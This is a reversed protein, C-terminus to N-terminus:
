QKLNSPTVLEGTYKQLVVGKSKILLSNRNETLTVKLDVRLFIREKKALLVFQCRKVFNELCWGNQGASMKLYKEPWGLIVRKLTHPAFNLPLPGTSAERKTSHGCPIQKELQFYSKKERGRGFFELNPFKTELLSFM